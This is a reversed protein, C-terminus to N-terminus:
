SGAQGNTFWRCDKQLSEVSLIITMQDTNPGWLFMFNHSIAFGNCWGRDVNSHRKGPRTTCAWVSLWITLWETLMLQVLLAKFKSLAAAWRLLLQLLFSVPKPSQICYYYFFFSSIRLLPLCPLLLAISNHPVFPVYDQTTLQPFPCDYCDRHGGWNLICLSYRGLRQRYLENHVSSQLAISPSSWQQHNDHDHSITLKSGCNVSTVSKFPVYYELLHILLPPHDNHTSLSVDKGVIACNTWMYPSLCNNVQFNLKPDHECEIHFAPPIRLRNPTTWGMVM